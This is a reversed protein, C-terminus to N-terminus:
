DHMAKRLSLTSVAVIINRRLSEDLMELQYSRPKIVVADNQHLADEVGQISMAKVSSAIAPSSAIEIRSSHSVIAEKCLLEQKALGM